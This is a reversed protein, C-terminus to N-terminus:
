ESGSGEWLAMIRGVTGQRRVPGQEIGRGRIRGVPDHNTRRPGRAGLSARSREAPGQHRAPGSEDQSGQNTGCPGSEDRPLRVRGAPGQDTVRPGSGDDRRLHAHHCILSTITENHSTINFKYIQGSRM